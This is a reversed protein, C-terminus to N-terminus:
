PIVASWVTTGENASSSFVEVMVGTESSPFSGDSTGSIADEEVVAGTNSSSLSSCEMAGVDSSDSSSTDAVVAGTMDGTSVSSWSWTVSAISYEVIIGPVSSLITSFTVGNSPSDKSCM